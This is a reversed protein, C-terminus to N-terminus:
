ADATLRKRAARIGGVSEIANVVEERTLYPLINLIYSDYLRHHSACLPVVSDPMVLMSGDEQEVDQWAKGITNALEAPRAGCVRCPGSKKEALRFDRRM